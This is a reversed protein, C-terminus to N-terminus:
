LLGEIVKIEIRRNQERGSATANAARPRSEGFGFPKVRSPSIGNSVMYEVVTLVREKSLELNAAAPGRNDTHGEVSVIVDPYRKLADVYVGLADRSSANLAADSPAFNLGKVAGMVIECGAPDVMVASATDACNDISDVIGDSDRDAVTPVTLAADGSGAAAVTELLNEEATDAADAADTVFDEDLDIDEPIQPAKSACGIAIQLSGLLVIWKTTKM